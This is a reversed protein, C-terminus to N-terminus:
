LGSATHGVSTMKCPPFSLCLPAKQFSGRKEKSVTRCCSRGPTGCSAEDLYRPARRPPDASGRRAPRIIEFSKQSVRNGPRCTPILAPGGRAGSPETLHGACAAGLPCVARASPGRRRGRGCVRTGALSVTTQQFCSLGPLVQFSRSTGAGCLARPHKERVTGSCGWPAMRFSVLLPRSWAGQHAASAPPLPVPPRRPPLPPAKM